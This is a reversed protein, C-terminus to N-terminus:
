HLYEIDRTAVERTQLHVLTCPSLMSCNKCGAPIYFPNPPPEHMTRSVPRLIALRTRRDMWGKARSHARENREKQTRDRRGGIIIVDM